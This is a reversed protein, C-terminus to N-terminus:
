VKVLLLLLSAKDLRYAEDGAQRKGDLGSHHVGLAALMGVQILSRHILLENGVLMSTNNSSPASQSSPKRAMDNDDTLGVSVIFCVISLLVLGLLIGQGFKKLQNREARKVDSHRKETARLESQLCCPCIIVVRILIEFPIILLALITIYGYYALTGNGSADRPYYLEMAGNTAFAQM